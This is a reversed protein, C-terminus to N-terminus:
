FESLFSKDISKYVQLERGLRQFGQQIEDIRTPNVCVACKSKGPDFLAAMHENGVRTLDAETVRTISDMFERKFKKDTDFYFSLLSQESALTVTKQEDIMEFLLSSKCSELQVPDWGAKGSIHDDVIAKARKYASVIHSSKCLMFQLLGVPPRIKIRVHLPVVLWSWTNAEM